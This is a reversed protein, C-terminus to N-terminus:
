LAAILAQAAHPNKAKAGSIVFLFVDRPKKAPPKAILPLDKPAGGTSWDRARDAWKEIAAKAIVKIGAFVEEGTPVIEGEELEFREKNRGGDPGPRVELTFVFKM